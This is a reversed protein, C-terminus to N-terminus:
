SQAQGSSRGTTWGGHRKLVHRLSTRLSDGGAWRKGFSFPMAVGVIFMFFPQILGWFHLGNWPHHDFEMGIFGLITGHLVSSRLLEYLGTSEGVLLFMTLGRFFDLSALRSEIFSSAELALSKGVTPKAETVSEM